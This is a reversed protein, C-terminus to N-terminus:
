VSGKTKDLRLHVRNREIRAGTDNMQLIYSQPRSAHGLVVARQWKGHVSVFVREGAAIEPLERSKRDYTRANAAKVATRWQKVDEWSISSPVVRTQVEDRVNRGLHLQAPTPRGTSIPTQHWALIARTLESENEAASIWKKVRKVAAEATGNGQPYEGSCTILQIGWEKCFDHFQASDYASGKDSYLIRPIGNRSMFNKIKSILTEPRRSNVRFYETWMSFVDVFLVFEEGKTQFYDSAVALGPAEPVEISMMSQCQQQPFNEQCYSCEDRYRQLDRRFNPSCVNGEARRIMARVGQHARHLAKIIKTRCNMPIILEGDRFVLNESEYTGERMSWLEGCDKRLHDPFGQWVASIFAQYQPDRLASNQIQKILPDSLDMLSLESIFLSDFDGDPAIPNRPSRKDCTKLQLPARSLADPGAMLKESVYEIEFDYRMLRAFMRQQRISLDGVQKKSIAVLPKHDTCVKVQSSYVYNDLREFAWAIAGLELDIQPYNKEASTLSHLACYLPRQNQLLIAGYGYPSADTWLELPEGPRFVELCLNESIKSNIDKM